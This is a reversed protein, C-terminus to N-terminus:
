RCTPAFFIGFPPPAVVRTEPRKAHTPTFGRAEDVPVYASIATGAREARQLLQATWKGHAGGPTWSADLAAQQPDERCAATLM